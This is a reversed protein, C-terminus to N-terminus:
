IDRDKKSPGRLFSVGMNKPFGGDKVKLVVGFIWAGFRWIPVKLRIIKVGFVDTLGLHSVALHCSPVISCSRRVKLSFM